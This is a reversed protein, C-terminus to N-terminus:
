QRKNRLLVDFELQKVIDFDPLMGLLEAKNAMGGYPKDTEGVDWVETWIYRTKPIMRAGGRIVDAESGEVDMWLLDIAELGFETCVDDLTRTPVELTKGFTIEPFMRAHGSPDKLTSSKNWDSNGAPGGDSLNLTAIGNSSSLAVPLFTIRDALGRKRIAAINRPDPEIGIYRKPPGAMSDLLFACEDGDCMGAEIITANRWTKVRERLFDGEIDRM